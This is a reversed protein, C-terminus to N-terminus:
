IEFWPPWSHASVRATPRFGREIDHFKCSSMRAAGHLRQGLYHSVTVFRARSADGCGISQEIASPAFRQL